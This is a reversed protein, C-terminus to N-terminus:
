GPQSGTQELGQSRLWAAMRGILLDLQEYTLEGGADIYAVAAREGRDLLRDIPQSSERHVFNMLKM